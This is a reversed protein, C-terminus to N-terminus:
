FKAVAPAVKVIGVLLKLDKETNIVKMVVQEVRWFLGIAFKVV